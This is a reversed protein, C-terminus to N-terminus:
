NRECIVEDESDKSTYCDDTWERHGDSPWHPYPERQFTKSQCVKNPVIIISLVFNLTSVIM